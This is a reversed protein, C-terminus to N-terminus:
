RDRMGRDGGMRGGGLGIGIGIGIGTVIANAADPSAASSSAPQSSTAKAKSNKTTETRGKKPQKKPQDISTSPPVINATKPKDTKSQEVEPKSASPMTPQDIVAPPQEGTTPPPLSTTSSSGTATSIAQAPTGAGSPQLPTTPYFSGSWPFPTTSQPLDDLAHSHCALCGSGEDRVGPRVALSPNSNFRQNALRLPV